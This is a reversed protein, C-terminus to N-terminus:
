IEQCFMLLVFISKNIFMNNELQGFAVFNLVVAIFLQSIPCLNCEWFKRFANPLALKQLKKVNIFYTVTFGELIFPM